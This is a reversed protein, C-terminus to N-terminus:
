PAVYIAGDAAVALDLSGNHWRKADIRGKGDGHISESLNQAPEVTRGGDRSRTFFIEGGHTGGSFVIEQWVIYVHAPDRPSLAIRPLWSFVAQSGSVNVPESFRERGDPAFRQWFVDKHRHDVWAVVADGDPAILVSPDDVYDYRSNNQQWAGREGGGASIEVPASWTIADRQSSGCAAATMAILWRM